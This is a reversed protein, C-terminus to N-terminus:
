AATVPSMRGRKLTIHIVWGFVLMIAISLAVILVIEPGMKFTPLTKKKKKSIYLRDRQLDTKTEHFFTGQYFDL